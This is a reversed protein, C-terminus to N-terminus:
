TLNFIMWHQHGLFFVNGVYVCFFNLDSRSTIADQKCLALTDLTGLSFHHFIQCEERLDLSLEGIAGLMVFADGVLLRELLCPLQHVFHHLETLLAFHVELITRGENEVDQGVGILSQMEDIQLILVLHVDQVGVLVEVDEDVIQYSLALLGDLQEFLALHLHEILVRVISPIERLKAQHKRMHQALQLRDKGIPQKGAILKADGLRIRSLKPLRFKSVLSHLGDLQQVKSNHQVPRGFPGNKERKMRLRSVLTQTTKKTVTAAVRM